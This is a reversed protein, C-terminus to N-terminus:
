KNKQTGILSNIEQKRLGELPRFGALGSIREYVWLMTTLEVYGSLNRICKKINIKAVVCIHAM